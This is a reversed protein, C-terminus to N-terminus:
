CARWRYRSHQRQLREHRYIRDNWSGGTATSGTGSTDTSDPGKMQLTLDKVLIRCQDIGPKEDSLGSLSIKDSMCALVQARAKGSAFWSFVREAQPTQAFKGFAKVM